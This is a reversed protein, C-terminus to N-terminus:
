GNVSAPKMRLFPESLAAQLVGLDIKISLPPSNSRVAAMNSTLM